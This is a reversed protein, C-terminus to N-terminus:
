RRRPRARLTRAARPDVRAVRVVPQLLLGQLARKKKKTERDEADSTSSRSTRKEEKEKGGRTKPNQERTKDKGDGSTEEHADAPKDKRNTTDEDGNQSEDGSKEGALTKEVESLNGDEESITSQTTDDDMPEASSRDALGNTRRESESSNTRSDKKTQKKKNPWGTRNKKKFKGRRGPARATAGANIENRIIDCDECESVLSSVDPANTSAILPTDGELTEDSMDFEGADEFIESLFQRLRESAEQTESIIPEVKLNSQTDSITDESATSKTDDTHKKRNLLGASGLIALTSAHERPSKRPHGELALIAATRKRIRQKKM